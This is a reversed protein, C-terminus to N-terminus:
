TSAIPVPTPAIGGAEGRRPLVSSLIEAARHFLVSTDGKCSSALLERVFFSLTFPSHEEEFTTM